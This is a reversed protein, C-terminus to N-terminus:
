CSLVEEGLANTKNYGKLVSMVSTMHLQGHWWYMEM